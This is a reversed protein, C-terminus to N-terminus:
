ARKARWLVCVENVMVEQGYLVEIVLLRDCALVAEELSDELRRSSQGELAKAYRTRTSLAM